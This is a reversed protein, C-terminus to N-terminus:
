FQDQTGKVKFPLKHITKRKKIKTRALEKIFSEKIFGIVKGDKILPLLKSRKKEM